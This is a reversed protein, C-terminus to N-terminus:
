SLPLTGVGTVDLARDGRIALGLALAAGDLGRAARRGRAGVRIEALGLHELV